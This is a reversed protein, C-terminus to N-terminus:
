ALRDASIVHRGPTGAVAAEILASAINQAPSIRWGRPLVPGFVRLIAESVREAARFEDRKGGILGPRVITYSCYELAAISAEVAGKTRNYLLRSGADAGIASVLAFSRAGQAQAAKAVALPYDHDVRIFAADSGAKACTTGLACIVADCRFWGADPPLADYDVIPNTLKPHPPLASRSPAIVRAIRPDDLARALVMRGVLGTAGAILLTTM